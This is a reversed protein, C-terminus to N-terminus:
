THVAENRVASPVGTDGAITLQTPMVSARIQTIDIFPVLRCHRAVPTAKIMKHPIAAIVPGQYLYRSLPRSETCSALQSATLRDNPGNFREM